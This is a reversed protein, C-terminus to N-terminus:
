PRTSARWCAALWLQEEPGLTLDAVQGNVVARPEWGLDGHWLTAEHTEWRYVFLLQEGHANEFYSHYTQPDDGNVTPPTGAALFHHNSVAFLPQDPLTSM